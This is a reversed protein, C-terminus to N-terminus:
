MHLDVDIKDNPDLLGSSSERLGRVSGYKDLFYITLKPFLSMAGGEGPTSPDFSQYTKPPRLFLLTAQTLFM